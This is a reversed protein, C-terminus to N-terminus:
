FDLSQPGVYALIGGCENETEDKESFYKNLAFLGAGLRIKSKVFM